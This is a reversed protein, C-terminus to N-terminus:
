REHTHTRTRLSVARGGVDIRKVFTVGASIDRNEPMVRRDSIVYIGTSSIGALYIRKTIQMKSGQGRVPSLAKIKVTSRRLLICWSFACTYVIYAAIFGCSINSKAPVISRIIVIVFDSKSATRSTNRATIGEVRKRGRIFARDHAFSRTRESIKSVNM